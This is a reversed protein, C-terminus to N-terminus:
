EGQGLARGEKALPSSNAAEVVSVGMVATVGVAVVVMLVERTKMVVLMVAVEVM